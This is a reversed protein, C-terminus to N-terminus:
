PNSGSPSSIVLATGDKLFQGEGKVAQTARIRARNSSEQRWVRLAGAVPRNQSGAAMNQNVSYLGMEVVNDYTFKAVDVMVEYREETDVLHLAKEIREEM